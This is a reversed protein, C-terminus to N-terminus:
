KSKIITGTAYAQNMNNMRVSYHYIGPLLRTGDFKVQNKGSSLFANEIEMVQRGAQDFLTVIAQGDRPLIFEITASSIFPNPYASCDLNDVFSVNLVPLSLKLGSVVDGKSNIFHSTEKMRLSYTNIDRHPKKAIAKISILPTGKQVQVGQLTSDMWTINLKNDSIFVHTGKITPEVKVIELDEPIVLAIHM